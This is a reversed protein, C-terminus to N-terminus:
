RGNIVERELEDFSRGCDARLAQLGTIRQWRRVVVDVYKPDFEMGYCSRGTKEAAIISTGSGLFPDLVIDGRDSCDIILDSVLQLPKPTPHEALLNGEEGSHGFSVASPYQWVNTRYRGFQGLEFNNTHAATGNKFVFVLEHQSRYFSGMGARDKVWVCLNKLETFITKGAALVDDMHQWGSFVFALAGNRSTEAALKLSTTLFTTYERSSMEGSAMAFDNHKVAGKGSVFGAIQLNYPPDTCVLNAKGGEMLVWYSSPDLANGCLVKQKGLMWLDGLRTVPNNPPVVIQEECDDRDPSELGEILVDIEAMQFGTLEISFDLDLKSLNKLQEALLRDDWVAIEALRNDALMYATAQAETLHELSITPLEAIGLLKCAEVRGHGAVILGNQAILIPGNLGFTKISQALQNVQKKSHM